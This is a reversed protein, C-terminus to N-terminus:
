TLVTAMIPMAVIAILVSVSTILASAEVDLGAEATFGAEMAAVPACLLLCIPVKVEVPVPLFFWVREVRDRALQPDVRGVVQQSLQVGPVPRPRRGRRRGPFASM